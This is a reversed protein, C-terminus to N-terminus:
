MHNMRNLFEGSPSKPKRPRRWWCCIQIAFILIVGHAVLIAQISGQYPIMALIALNATQAVLGLPTDNGIPSLARLGVLMLGAAMVGLMGWRAHSDADVSAYASTTQFYRSPFLKKYVEVGIINPPSRGSSTPKSIGGLGLYGGYAKPFYQYWRSSVEVPGLLTRYILYDGGYRYAKPGHLAESLRYLDGLGVVAGQSKIQAIEDKAGGADAWAVLITSMYHAGVFLMGACVLASLPILIRLKRLHVSVIILLMTVLFIFAPWKAGSSIAYATCWLVVFLAALNKKNLILIGFLLPGFVTLVYQFLYSLLRPIEKNYQERQPLASELSHQSIAKLFPIQGAIAIHMLPLLLVLTCLVKTIAPYAIQGIETSPSRRSAIFDGIFLALLTIEAAHLQEWYFGTPPNFKTMYVLPVVYFALWVISPLFQLPDLKRV